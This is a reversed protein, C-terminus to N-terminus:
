VIGMNPNVKGQGSGASPEGSFRLAERGGTGCRNTECGARIAQPRDRADCSM